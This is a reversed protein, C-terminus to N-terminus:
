SSSPADQETSFFVDLEVMRHITIIEETEVTDWMYTVRVQPHGEESKLRKIDLLLCHNRGRCAPGGSRSVRMQLKRSLSRSTIFVDLIAAAETEHVKESINKYKYNTGLLYDKWDVSPVTRPQVPMHPTAM